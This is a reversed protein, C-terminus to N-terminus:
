KDLMAKVLALLPRRAAIPLAAILEATIEVDRPLKTEAARKSVRRKKKSKSDFVADLQLGLGNEVIARLTSLPVDRIGKEVEGLYKGGFGAKEAVAEQTLKAAERLERLRAGLREFLAKDTPLM